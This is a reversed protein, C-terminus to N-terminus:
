PLRSLGNEDREFVVTNSKHQGSEWWIVYRGSQTMDYIEPGFGRNAVLSLEGRKTDRPHGGRVIQDRARSRVVSGDPRSVCITNADFTDVHDRSSIEIFGINRIALKLALPNDSRTPLERHSVFSDLLLEVNAVRHKDNETEESRLAVALSAFVVVVLLFHSSKKKM